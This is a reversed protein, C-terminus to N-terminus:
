KEEMVNMVQAIIMEKGYINIVAKVDEEYKKDFSIRLGFLEKENGEGAIGSDLIQDIFDLSDNGFGYKDMDLSIKDLEEDLLDYNWQAFDHTKNDILRFAKQQEETLDDAFIAPIEKLGLKKSAEYRTHGNIIIYDKNIVIPVKFGFNKISEAVKDVADFNVRPNNKYPKLLKIDVNKIKMM